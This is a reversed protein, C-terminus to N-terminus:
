YKAGASVHLAIQVSVSCFYRKLVTPTGKMEFGTLQKEILETYRAALWLLGLVGVPSVAGSM